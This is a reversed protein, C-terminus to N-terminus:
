AASGAPRCRRASRPRMASLVRRTVERVGNALRERRPSASAGDPLASLRQREQELLLAALASERMSTAARRGAGFWVQSPPVRPCLTGSVSAVASASRLRRDGQRLVCPRLRAAIASATSQSFAVLLAVAAEAAALAFELLSCWLVPRAAHARPLRPTCATAVLGRAPHLPRCSDLTFRLWPHWRRRCAGRSLAALRSIADVVGLVVLTAPGRGLSRRSQDEHHDASRQNPSCTTEPAPAVTATRRDRRRRSATSPAGGGPPGRRAGSTPPTM